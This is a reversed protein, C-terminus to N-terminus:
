SMAPAPQAKQTVVVGVCRHAMYQHDSMMSASVWKLESDAGSSLM